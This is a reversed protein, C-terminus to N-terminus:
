FFCDSLASTFKYEINTELTIVKKYDFNSRASTKTKDHNEEDVMQKANGTQSHYLTMVSKEVNVKPKSTYLDVKTNSNVKRTLANLTSNLKAQEDALDSSLYEIIAAVIGSASRRKKNDNNEELGKSLSNYLTNLGTLLSDNPLWQNSSEDLISYQPDALGLRALLSLLMATLKYRFM